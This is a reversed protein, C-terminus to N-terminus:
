GSPAAKVPAGAFEGKYAPALAGEFAALPLTIEYAGEAYAGVEYPSFQFSVGGARGKATGPELAIQSDLWKPCSWMEGDLPGAGREAKERKLADCLAAEPGALRDAVFVASPAVERGTQKDYLLTTLTSNPHAGGTFSSAERVLSLLRGTEAAVTWAVTAGYPPMAAGPGKRDAVADAAVKGLEAVERDYLTRHLAPHPRLAIPLILSVEADPTTKEYSFPAAPAAAAPAPATPEAPPSRDCATLALIFVFALGRVREDGRVRPDLNKRDGRRWGAFFGPKGRERSHATNM